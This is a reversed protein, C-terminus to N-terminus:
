DPGSRYHSVELHDNGDGRERVCGPWQCSGGVVGRGRVRASRSSRTSSVSRTTHRRISLTGSRLGFKRPHNADRAIDAFSAGYDTDAAVFKSDVSRAAGSSGEASSRTMASTLTRSARFDEVVVVTLYQHQLKSPSSV